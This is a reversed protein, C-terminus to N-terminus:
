DVTALLIREADDETGESAKYLETGVPLMTSTGDEFWKYDMTQKMIIGERKGKRTEHNIERTKRMYVVGNWQFIDPNEYASLYDKATLESSQVTKGSFNSSCGITLLIMSLSIVLKYSKLPGQRGKKSDNIYLVNRIRYLKM